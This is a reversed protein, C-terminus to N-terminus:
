LHLGLWDPKLRQIEADPVPIWRCSRGAWSCTDDQRGARKGPTLHCSSGTSLSAKGVPWGCVRRGLLTVAPSSRALFAASDTGSGLAALLSHSAPATRMGAPLTNGERAEIMSWHKLIQLLPCFIRSMAGMAGMASTAEFRWLLRHSGTGSM